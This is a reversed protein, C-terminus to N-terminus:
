CYGYTRKTARVRQEAAEINREAAAMQELARLVLRNAVRTRRRWWLTKTTIM